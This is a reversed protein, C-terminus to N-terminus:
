TWTVFELMAERCRFLQRHCHQFKENEREINKKLFTMQILQHQFDKFSLESQFERIVIPKIAFNQETAMIGIEVLCKM